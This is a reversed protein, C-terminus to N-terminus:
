RYKLTFNFEKQYKKLEDMLYYRHTYGNLVVIKKNPNLKIQNLINKVMAKNRTDWYKMHVPIFDNFQALEERENAIEPVYKYLYLQRERIINDATENNFDAINKANRSIQWYSKNIALYKKVVSSQESTLLNERNLKLVVNILKSTNSSLNHKFQYEIFEEWEYPLVKAEPNQKIYKLSIFSEVKNGSKFASMFQWFFDTKNLMRNLTKSDREFLIIAPSVSDLYRYFDDRKIKDTEFHVTGLIHVEIGRSSNDKTAMAKNPEEQNIYRNLDIHYKVVGGIFILITLSLWIAVIYKIYKLVKKKIM